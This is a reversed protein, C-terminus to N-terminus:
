PATREDNAAASKGCLPPEPLAEPALNVGVLKRLDIRVVVSDDRDRIAYDHHKWRNLIARLRSAEHQAQAPDLQVPVEVRTQAQDSFVLILSM